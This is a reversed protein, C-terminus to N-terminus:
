DKNTEETNIKDETQSQEQPRKTLAIKVFTVVLMVLAIIFLVLIIADVYKGFLFTLLTIITGAILNGVALPLISDRFRLGLFVAIATGTWVGTVPFPVAVFILLSIVYVKNIRSQIQEETLQVDDIKDKAKMAISLAKNKLMLEVKEFFKGVGKIKKFLNFLPVLLFFIPIVILTSGLYALPATQLLDLGLKAGIPIAGKLEVLPFMSIFLVILFDNQIFSLFDVILDAM